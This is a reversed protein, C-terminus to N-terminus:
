LSRWDASQEFAHAARYVTPEDFHRGVLMMGVPLGESMGCPLSLAPHHTADFPATNATMEFARDMNEEPGCDPAPIPTAKMPTTPMLLLDHEALVTDYAARLKRTLNIAKGYYHPGHHKAIYTGLMVFAKCPVPLENARGRWGRQLDSFSTVYLDSRGMGFGDHWFMTQTLGEVALPTYIPAMDGHMPISVESVQAGLDRFRGAAARVKEDVDPESNHHAFGEPVVAIKMGRVGGELLESYPYTTVGRQRPDYADEGAIVELLLANDAVTRTMPGTHDLVVEIPAIGTYPVLGYTPKLGCIGCYAAPVRISGGQDGGIGMDVEGSAVLVGCGSSSGGASYGRKHPNHTPGLSNNHSGGSLFDVAAKGVIEGGADLIRTVVTADIEPVYGELISTGGMMPVGALMVNDKLVVTKGKLKGEAAGRISTKHYWANHPDETADPRYGPARPYKVPPLEDPLADLRRYHEVTPALLRLYAAVEDDDLDLGITEAIERLEDPSPLDVAM